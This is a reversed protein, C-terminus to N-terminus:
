DDDDDEDDDDDDREERWRSVFGDDDDDDDRDDDDDFGDDDDDFDDEFEDEFDDLDGSGGWDKWRELTGPSHCRWGDSCTTQDYDDNPHCDNCDLGWHGESRLPFYQDHDIRITDWDDTTHCDGCDTDWHQGPRFERELDRDHCSECSADLADHDTAFTLDGDRGRHDTHCSACDGDLGTHWSEETSTQSTSPADDLDDHCDLCKADPIGNWPEHCDNCGTDVHEAHLPGPSLTDDGQVASAGIVLIATALSIAVLLTIRNM